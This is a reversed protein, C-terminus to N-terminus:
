EMYVPRVCTRYRIYAIGVETQLPVIVYENRIYPCNIDNFLSLECYHKMNERNLKCFIGTKICEKVLEELHEESM